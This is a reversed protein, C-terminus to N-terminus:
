ERPEWEVPGGQYDHPCKAYRVFDRLANEGANAPPWATVPCTDCRFPKPRRACPEGVLEVGTPPRHIRRDSM